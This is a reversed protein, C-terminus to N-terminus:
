RTAEPTITRIAIRARDLDGGLATVVQAAPSQGEHILGLLLHETGINASDIRVAEQLALELARKVAPAFPLPEPSDGAGAPLAPKLDRRVTDLPIGLASLLQASASQDDHVLALLLHETGLHDHHLARAEESALVLARRANETYREFM